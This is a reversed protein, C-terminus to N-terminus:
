GIYVPAHNTYPLALQRPSGILPLRATQKATVDDIHHYPSDGLKRHAMNNQRRRDQFRVKGALNVCEKSLMHM